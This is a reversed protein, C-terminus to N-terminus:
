KKVVEMFLSELTPESKEFKILEIRKEAIFRLVDYVSHENERFSLTNNEGRRIKDFGKVLALLSGENETQLVYEDTRYVSKIDSLKGQMDVRGDNLFAVDTCIREVDSLIHTSFIVTTQEKVAILIDLIEKRGVPDLASTPEDCILLKPSNMLAQAIGLRQKMGRSYGKIRHKEDSLGVLKLLEAGKSKIESRKMGTIEGCFSLYEEATMFSYFEPVDPLYGIYKNSTTQGYVVKEGAVTIEGKDAKMLGLVAKMTTTKGAGNKGIFGFISNEPVILDVGKLVEKDAFSKHLNAIELMSM